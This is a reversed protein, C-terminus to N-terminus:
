PLTQPSNLKIEELKQKIIQNNPDARLVAEFEKQAEAFRKAEFYALGLNTRGSINGPDMSLLVNYETIANEIDGVTFYINAMYLRAKASRPALQVLKECSKMAENWNKAVIGNETKRFLNDMRQMFDDKKGLKSSIIELNKRALDFDPDIQVAKKYAELAEEGSNTRTYLYGLNNWIDRNNPFFHLCQKFLEIGPEAYFDANQLFVSGLAMYSENSIPNIFLARSYEPIAGNVDGTQMMVTAMNFYIEDYGANARLSEKYMWVAKEKRGSRAYCNGLEYNNNVELRQLNHAAELEPIAKQLDNMKSAKFGAFYHIEAMFNRSYRIILLAGFIVLSWLVLKRWPIKLNVKLEGGRGLSALLGLNWWYMFGPIAFHLSVNLLNDTWMGILSSMLAISLLRKEGSSNRILFMGYVVVAVIFWLYIGFGVIGTQSWIELLENHTNNAHTRFNHYSALFLHRGQYFPYFLEFCGWGKGFLPREKVMHWGCSWILRRQDWAGYLIKTAQGSETLREVVTPSYGSIRSRPWLVTLAILLVVCIYVLKKGRKLLAPEYKWLAWIVFVFSVFAGMWSSRTMTCLLGAFVLGLVILYFNRKGSTQASFFFVFILPMILVLYSSLFNPNGFTSVSRGGFPNLVKPWIFEMGFYQMVGYVSAALGAFIATNIFKNRNSDDTFNVAAYYVLVANVLLYLWRKSGESYIGYALYPEKINALFILILSLTAAGFFVLIPPDLPTTKLSIDGKNNNIYLWYVWIFVTLANVLVIQFYYPNRTLDTFFVLPPVFLTFYILYKLFTNNM